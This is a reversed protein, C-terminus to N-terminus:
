EGRQFREAEEGALQDYEDPTMAVLEVVNWQDPYQFESMYPSDLHAQAEEATHFIQETSKQLDAYIKGDRHKPMIVYFTRAM